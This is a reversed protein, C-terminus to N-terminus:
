YERNKKRGPMPIPYKGDPGAQVPAPSDMTLKDAGPAYEHEHNLMEDFTIEQGTHAAMRGMSTTLSAKVGREVESYPKDNRIADTLDNWENLYPDQEEPKVQSTWILDNRNPSQGRYTSSPLGCDNAKSVIAMGKSGHAYSSYIPNCGNICRGELMMKSGDEFTYEVSYTDFNQDVYDIGEPSQRYHRGGLAQAKVPWANKMWCLHDIHHIYFDSYCGGSAWIFSHFRKIQYMLESIGEPKPLSAMSGVPGHMRYGRLLILDGIEGGQIRDHLEQLARSHRSMLGVGVKLNKKKAEEALTLMRRSTPGDATLPKEMFVNLGKEIAYTFHVWRFALPTTFIAIDGKNLCDMAKKYGDFGIFKRDQPVDVKEGVDKHRKLADYSTTLRDDFVDAMAVLKMPGTSVSLANVAAGSGRGGCGILAVQVTNNEAAHVHPLAVGALAGVAAIKGSSRLFERRSTLNEKPDNMHNDEQRPGLFTLEISIIFFL